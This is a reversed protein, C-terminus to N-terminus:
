KKPLQAAIAQLAVLANQAAVLSATATSTGVFKPDTVTAQAADLAADTANASKQLLGVMADTKCIPMATPCTPLAKYQNALTVTALFTGKAEFVAQAPTKPTPLVTSCSGLSVALILALTLKM